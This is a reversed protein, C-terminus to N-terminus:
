HVNIRKSKNIKPQVLIANKRKVDKAISVKTNHYKDDQLQTHQERRGEGHYFHSKV